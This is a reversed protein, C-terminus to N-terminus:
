DLASTDRIDTRAESSYTLRCLCLGAGVGKTVHGWNPLVCPHIRFATLVAEELAQGSWKWRGAPQVNLLRTAWSSGAFLECKPVEPLHGLEM